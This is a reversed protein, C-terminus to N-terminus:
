IWGERVSKSGLEALSTCRSKALINKRHSNITHVSVSLLEAIAATSKGSLVLRLVEKERRSFLEKAALLVPSEIPINYFSEEGELGLFSLGSPTDDTKLHNIDTQVGLVRIVSGYEDSQLTVTQMLIWKYSGDACRLRYDYSVKYKLVKEPPLSNFFETVKKEHAAFRGKDEPHINEFIYEVTFDEPLVSLVDTVSGSVFEMKVAAINVIYYYYAGPHFIGLMKKYVELEFSPPIDGPNHRAIQYWTKKM